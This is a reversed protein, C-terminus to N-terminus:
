FPVADDEARETSVTLKAVVKDIERAMPGPKGFIAARLAALGARNEEPTCLRDPVLPPCGYCSECFFDPQLPANCDACRVQQQEPALPTPHDKRKRAM